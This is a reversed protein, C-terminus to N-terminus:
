MFNLIKMLLLGQKLTQKDCSIKGKLAIIPKTPNMLVSDASTQGAYSVSGDKVNLVTVQLM